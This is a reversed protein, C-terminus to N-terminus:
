RVSLVDSYDIGITYNRNLFEVIEKKYPLYEKPVQIKRNEWPLPINSIIKIESGKEDIFKVIDFNILKNGNNFGEKEPTVREYYLEFNILTILYKSNQPRNKETFFKIVFIILLIGLAISKLVSVLWSVKILEIMFMCGVMSVVFWFLQYFYNEENDRKVYLLTTGEKYFDLSSSKMINLQVVIDRLLILVFCSAHSLQLVQLLPGVLLGCVFYLLAWAKVHANSM